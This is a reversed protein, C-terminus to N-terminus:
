YCVYEYELDCLAVDQRENEVYLSAVGLTLSMAVLLSFAVICIKKM